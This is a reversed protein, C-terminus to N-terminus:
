SSSRSHFIEQIRALLLDFDIPKHIFGDAGYEAPLYPSGAPWSQWRAAPALHYVMAM